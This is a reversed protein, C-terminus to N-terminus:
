SGIIVLESGAGMNAGTTGTLTSFNMVQIRQIADATNAWIGAGHWMTPATAASTSIANAFWRLRAPYGAAPKILVWEVFLHNTSAITAHQLQLGSQSVSSTGTASSPVFSISASTTGTDIAAGGLRMRASGTAVGVIFLHGRLRTIGSPITVVPFTNANAGLVEKAILDPGADLREVVTGFYGQPNVGLAAQVKNVADALDNHHTPHDTASTTGDAKNTALSDLTAPYGSPM